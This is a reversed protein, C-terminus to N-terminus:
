RDAHQQPNSQSHALEEQQYEQYGGTMYKVVPYHFESVLRTAVRKSQSCSTSSCYVILTLNTPVLKLFAKIEESTSSEPLSIADPIHGADYVAAMRVDVLLASGSAVLPKAERWHLPAPNLNTQAPPSIVVPLQNTAPATSPVAVAPKPVNTPAPPLRPAPPLIAAPRVSQPGPPASTGAAKVVGSTSTLSFNTKGSVVPAPTTAAKAFRVGIPNAANFTFGLAASLGL